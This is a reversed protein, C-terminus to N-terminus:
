FSYRVSLYINDNKNHQGLATNDDAGAFINAGLAAQLNDSFNYTAEPMLLFDQEDPSYFAFLSLKLTQYKLLKTLRLTLYQHLENKKAFASPLNDKYQSYQHTLEGYYQLGASFDSPFAKQYGFLFRSHSNDIGPDGGGRDDLSDYYGYEASVVGGLASRQASAGYVALEPYFHSIASPSNFNDAKMAPSGFFGKYLYVGVDYDGIYRYFRLAYETDDFTAHPKDMERYTIAPYPDFYHFRGTSPLNDATFNPIAVAEISVIDCYYDLKISDAGMKLYELPRGSYFAEWNKPFVDNIFLLDGVGWTHIQRGIRLAFKDDVFDLYGERFDSAWEDEVWDHYFDTKVFLGIKSKQPYFSAKFQTREEGLILNGQKAGQPNDDAIRVSYNTQLFGQLSFEEAFVFFSPYICFLFGFVLIKFKSNYNQNKEIKDM